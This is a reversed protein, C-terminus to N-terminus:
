ESKKGTRHNLLVRFKTGAENDDCSSITTGTNYKIHVTTIYEDWFLSSYLLTLEKAALLNLAGGAKIEIPFKPHM